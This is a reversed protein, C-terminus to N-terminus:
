PEKRNAAMGLLSAWSRMSFFHSYILPLYGNKRWQIILDDPLAQFKNEDVIQFGQVIARQGSVFEFHASQDTLLDSKEVAGCFEQTLAFHAQYDSCFALVHKVPEMPQGNAFLPPEGATGFNAAKEDIGLIFKDPKSGTM